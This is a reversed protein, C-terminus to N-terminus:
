VEAGAGHVGESYTQEAATGPSRVKSRTEYKLLTATGLKGKCRPCKELMTGEPGGFFYDRGEERVFVLMQGCRHYRAWAKIKM